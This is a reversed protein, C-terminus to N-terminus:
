KLCPAGKELENIQKPTAGDIIFALGNMYNMGICIKSTDNPDGQRFRCSPCLRLIKGMLKSNKGDILPHDPARVLEAPM